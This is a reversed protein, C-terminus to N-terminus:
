KRHKRLHIKEYKEILKDVPLRQADNIMSLVIVCLTMQNNKPLGDIMKGVFAGFVQSATMDSLTALREEYKKHNKKENIENCLDYEDKNILDSELRFTKMIESFFERAEEPTTSIKTKEIVDNWEHIKEIKKETTDDQCLYNSELINSLLEIRKEKELTLQPRDRKRDDESINSQFDTQSLQRKQGSTFSSNEDPFLKSSQQFLVVDELFKMKEYYKWCGNRKIGDKSSQIEKNRERKYQTKLNRVKNIIDNVSVSSNLEKAIKDWERNKLERNSHEALRVDWVIPHDSVIDILLWLEEETFTHDNAKRESNPSQQM